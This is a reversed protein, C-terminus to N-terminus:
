STCLTILTVHGSGQGAACMGSFGGSNILHSAPAFLALATPTTGSTVLAQRWRCKTTDTTLQVCLSARAFTLALPCM